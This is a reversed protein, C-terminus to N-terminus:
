NRPRKMSGDDNGVGEEVTASVSAAKRKAGKGVPADEAISAGEPLANPAADKQAINERAAEAAAGHASGAGEKEKNPRPLMSVQPTLGPAACAVRELPAEVSASAPAASPMILVENEIHSNYLPKVNSVVTKQAHGGIQKVLGTTGTQLKLCSVIAGKAAATAVAFSVGSRRAAFGVPVDRAGGSPCPPDGRASEASVKEGSDKDGGRSLSQLQQGGSSSRLSAAATAAAATSTAERRSRLEAMLAAAADRSDKALRANADASKAAVSVVLAELRRRKQSIDTLTEM